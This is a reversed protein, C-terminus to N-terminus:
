RPCQIVLGFNQGFGIGLGFKRFGFDLRKKESLLIKSISISVELFKAFTEPGLGILVSKFIFSIMWDGEGDLM